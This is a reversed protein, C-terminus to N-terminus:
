PRYISIGCTNKDIMEKLVNMNNRCEYEKLYKTIM